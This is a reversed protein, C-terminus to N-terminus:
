IIRLTVHLALCYNKCPLHKDCHNRDSNPWKLTGLMQKSINTVNKNFLKPLLTKFIVLSSLYPLYIVQWLLILKSNPWFVGLLINAVFNNKKRNWFICNFNKKFIIITVTYKRQQTIKGRVFQQHDCKKGEFKLHNEPWLTKWQQTSKAGLKLNTVM